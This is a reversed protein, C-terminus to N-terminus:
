DLEGKSSWMQLLLGEGGEAEGLCIGRRTEQLDADWRLNKAPSTMSLSGWLLPWIDALCGTQPEDQSGAAERSARDAWGRGRGKRRVQNCVVYRLSVAFLLSASATHAWCKYEPARGTNCISFSCLFHLGLCKKRILEQLIFQWIYNSHSNAEFQLHNLVCLCLTYLYCLIHGSYNQPTQPFGSFYYM